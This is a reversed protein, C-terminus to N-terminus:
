AEVLVWDEANEVEGAKIYNYGAGPTFGPLSLAEVLDQHRQLEFLYGADNNDPIETEGTDSELLVKMMAAECAQKPKRLIGEVRVEAEPRKLLGCLLRANGGAPPSPTSLAARRIAWEKFRRPLPLRPVVFLALMTGLGAEDEYYNPMSDYTDRLTGAEYLSYELVDDDYNRLALTVCNFRESLAQALSIWADEMDDFAEDDLEEDVDNVEDDVDDIDDDLLESRRDCIVTNGDVTPSVYAPCSLQKLADQIDDQAPGHITISTYFNGM